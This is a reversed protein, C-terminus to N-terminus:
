RQPTRDITVLRTDDVSFCLLTLTEADRPTPLYTWCDAMGFRAVSVRRDSPPGLRGRVEEQTMGPRLFRREAGKDARELEEMESVTLPLAQRGPAVAAPALAKTTAIKFVKGGQFHVNVTENGRAYAWRESAGDKDNETQIEAPRGWAREVQRPTMGIVVHGLSAEQELKQTETSTAPPAPGVDVKAARSGCPYDAYVVKGDEICRYIEARPETALLTSALATPALLM